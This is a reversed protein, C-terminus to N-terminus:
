SEVGIFLEHIEADLLERPPRAGMIPEYEFGVRQIVPAVLELVM